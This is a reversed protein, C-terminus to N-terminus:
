VKELFLKISEAEEKLKERDFLLISLIRKQEKQKVDMMDDSIFTKVLAIKSQYGVALELGVHNWGVLDYKESEINIKKKLFISPANIKSMLLLRIANERKKLNLRQCMRDLFHATYVLIKGDEIGQFYYVTGKNTSIPYVEISLEVKLGHKDVKTFYAIYPTKEGYIFFFKDNFNSVGKKSSFMEIGRSNKTKLLHYNIKEKIIKNDLVKIREINELLNGYEQEM